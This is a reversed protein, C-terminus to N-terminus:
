AGQDLIYALNGRRRRSSRVIVLFGRSRQYGKGVLAV